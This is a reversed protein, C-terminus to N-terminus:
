LSGYKRIYVCEAFLQLDASSRIRSCWRFFRSIYQVPPMRQSFALAHIFCMPTEFIYELQIATNDFYACSIFSCPRSLLNMPLFKTNSSRRPSRIEASIMASTDGTRCGRAVVVCVAYVVAAVQEKYLAGGAGFVIVAGARFFAFVMICSGGSAWFSNRLPTFLPRWTKRLPRESCIRTSGSSYVM